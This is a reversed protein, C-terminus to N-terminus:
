ARRYAVGDIEIEEPAEVGVVTYTVTEELKPKFIISRVKEGYMETPHRCCRSINGYFKSDSYVFIFNDDDHKHVTLKTKRPDWYHSWIAVKQDANLGRVDIIFKCDDMRNEDIIM